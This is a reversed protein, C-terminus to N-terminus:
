IGELWSKAEELKSYEKASKGDPHNKASKRYAQLHTETAILLIDKYRLLDEQLTNREMGHKLQLEQIKQMLTQIRSELIEVDSKEAYTKKSVHSVARKVTKPKDEVINMWSM